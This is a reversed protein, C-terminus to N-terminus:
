VNQVVLGAARFVNEEWGQPDPVREFERGEFRALHDVEAALSNFSGDSNFATFGRQGIALLVDDTSYIQADLNGDYMGPGAGKYAARLVNLAGQDGAFGANIRHVDAPTLSGGLTNIVTVASALEPSIALTDNAEHLAKGFTALAADFKEGLAARTVQYEARAADIQAVLYDERYTEKQLELVALRARYAARAKLAATTLTRAHSLFDGMHLQKTLKDM